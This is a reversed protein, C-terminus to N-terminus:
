TNRWARAGWPKVRNSPRLRSPLPGHQTTLNKLEKKLKTTKFIQRFQELKKANKGGFKSFLFFSNGIVKTVM